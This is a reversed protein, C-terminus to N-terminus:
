TNILKIISMQTAELKPTMIFITPILMAVLGKKSMCEIRKSPKLTPTQKVKYSFQWVAWSKEWGMLLIHSNEISSTKALM